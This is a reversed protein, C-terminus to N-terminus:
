AKNDAGKANGRYCSFIMTEIISLMRIKAAAMKRSSRTAYFKGSGAFNVKYGLVANSFIMLRTYRKVGSETKAHEAVPPM